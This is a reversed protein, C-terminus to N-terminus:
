HPKYVCTGVLGETSERLMLLVEFSTLTAQPLIAGPDLEEFSLVNHHQVIPRVIPRMSDNQLWMMVQALAAPEVGREHELTLVLEDFPLDQNDFAGLVSARVRSLVERASPDGALSTRLIVTNVLPGILRETGPRNRNALYTAVRVDDQGTHCHLFTKFAAMLTMF